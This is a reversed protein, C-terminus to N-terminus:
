PAGTDAIPECGGIDVRALLEDVRGHGPVRLGPDIDALPLLVFAREAIHPHPVRLGDEDIRRDGILLIDLDLVRPGWRTGDRVRGQAREVALLADLLERPSLETALAVVANVFGPQEIRGWPLTRFLRSARLLRSRPLHALADIAARVQHEPDALNSGIAVYALDEGARNM